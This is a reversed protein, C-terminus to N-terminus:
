VNNNPCLVLGGVSGSGVVLGTSFCHSVIGLNEGALAGVHSSPGSPVITVEVIGLNRVEAGSGLRGFLGLYDGRTVRLHSIKHTNGDFVGTFPTGKYRWSDPAMDGAIVAKRFVKRGPLNPDLDVDATLIFHKDYDEPSDGLLILDDATAIEYPDEPQGTGGSYKAQAASVITLLLVIATVYRRFRGPIAM